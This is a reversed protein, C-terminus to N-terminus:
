WSIELDNELSKTKFGLVNMFKSFQQIVDGSEYVHQFIWDYKISIKREGVRSANDILKNIKNFSKGEPTTLWYLIDAAVFDSSNSYRQSPSGWDLVCEFDDLVFSDREAQLAKVSTIREMILCALKKLLSVQKFIFELEESGLQVCIDDFDPVYEDVLLDKLELPRSKDNIKVLPTLNTWTEFVEFVEDFRNEDSEGSFSILDFIKPLLINAYLDSEGRLRLQAIMSAYLFKRLKLSEDEYQHRTILIWDEIEAISKKYSEIQKTKDRVSYGSNNLSDILLKRGYGAGLLDDDFVLKTVGSLAKDISKEVFLSGNELVFKQAELRKLNNQKKREQIKKQTDHFKDVLAAAKLPNPKSIKM